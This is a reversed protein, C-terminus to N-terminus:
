AARARSVKGGTEEHILLSEFTGPPKRESRGSQGIGPTKKEVTVGGALLRAIPGCRWRTAMGVPAMAPCGDGCGSIGKDSERVAASAPLVGGFIGSDRDILLELHSTPCPSQVGQTAAIQRGVEVGDGDEYATTSRAVKTSFEVLDFVVCRPQRSRRSRQWRGRQGSKRRTCNGVYILWRLRWRRRSKSKRRPLPLSTDLEGHPWHYSSM